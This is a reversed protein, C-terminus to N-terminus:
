RVGRLAKNAGVDFVVENDTAIAGDAQAGASGGRVGVANHAVFHDGVITSGADVKQVFRDGRQKSYPEPM